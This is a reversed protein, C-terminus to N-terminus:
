GHTQGRQTLVGAFEEEDIMELLREQQSYHDKFVRGLADMRSKARTVTQRCEALLKEHDALEGRTLEVYYEEKEIDYNIWYRHNFAQVRKSADANIDARATYEVLDTIKQKLDSVGQLRQTLEDASNKYAALQQQFQREALRLRSTYILGLKKYSKHQQTARSM